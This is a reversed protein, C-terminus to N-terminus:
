CRMSCTPAFGDYSGCDVSSTYTRLALFCSFVPHKAGQMTPLVISKSPYQAYPALPAKMDFSSVKWQFSFAPFFRCTNLAQATAGRVPLTSQFKVLEEVDKIVLDDSGARPAHISIRRLSPKISSEM